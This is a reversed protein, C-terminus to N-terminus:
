FPPDDPIRKDLKAILQARQAPNLRDIVTQFEGFPLDLLEETRKAIQAREMQQLEYETYSGPDFGPEGMVPHRSTAPPVERTWADNEAALEETFPNIPPLLPTDHVIKYDEDAGITETLRVWTKTGPIAPCYDKSMCTFCADGPNALFVEGQLATDLQRYWSKVAERGYRSKDTMDLPASAKGDKSMWWDGWDVVQGTLEEVALAYTAMQYPDAPVHVGTKLDRVMLMKKVEDWLVIDIYGIVQIIVDPFEFSLLFGVETAPEDGFLRAPQLTSGLQNAIIYDEVQKAGLEHRKDNDTKWKSRGGVTWRDTDPIKELQKAMEAAWAAEYREVAEPVTMTRESKEYQDVAEHVALGQVFWSATRQPVRDIRGLKHSMGCSTYGQLKSVSYRRIPKLATPIGDTESM